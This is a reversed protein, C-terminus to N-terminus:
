KKLGKRLLRRYKKLMVKPEIIRIEGAARFVWAYFAPGDEARVTVYFKGESAPCPEIEDGFYDMVNQIQENACELIVEVAEAEHIKADKYIVEKIDYAEPKFVPENTIEVNCIHDIREMTVSQESVNEPYGLIYYRDERCIIAAPSLLSYEGDNKIGKEKTPLYDFSQYKIKRDKNIAETIQEIEKYPQRKDRKMADPVYM